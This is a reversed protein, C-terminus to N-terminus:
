CADLFCAEVARRSENGQPMAPGLEIATRLGSVLAETDSPAIVVHGFERAREALGSESSIVVRCGHAMGELAPLGIQERWGPVSRSDLVLVSAEAFAQVVERRPPTVGVSVGEPDQTAMEQALARLPGDGLCRLHWGPHEARVTPWADLLTDFGKRRAMEAAFLVTQRKPVLRQAPLCDWIVPGQTSRPFSRRWEDAAQQSGHVVVDITRASRRWVAQLVPDLLKAVPGPVARRTLTLSEELALNEISLTVLRPRQRRVAIGWAVLRAAPWARLWAPEPLEVVKPKLRRGVRMLTFWSGEFWRGGLGSLLQSDLDQSRHRSLIIAPRGEGDVAGALREVVSSRLDPVIIVYDSHQGETPVQTARSV